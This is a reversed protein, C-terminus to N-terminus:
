IPFAAVPKANMHRLQTETTKPYLRENRESRLLRKANQSNSSMTAAQLGRQLYFGLVLM